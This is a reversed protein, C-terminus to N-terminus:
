RRPLRAHHQPAADPGRLYLPRPERHSGPRSEAILGLEVADATWTAAEAPAGAALHLDDSYLDVGLGVAGLRPLDVASGVHPGEILEASPERGEASTLRRYRAWYVERRRADAAVLFDLQGGVHEAQHGSDQGGIGEALMGHAVMRHAVADLSCIGHLPQRWVEAVTHALVLGVRLGTFPGPGVGVVVGDLEGPSVGAEDMVEHVASALVEAHTTTAQTRWAALVQGDHIVAASAGASSDIALLM